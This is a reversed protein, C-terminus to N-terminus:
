FRVAMNLSGYDHDTGNRVERTLHFLTMSLSIAHSSYMIGVNRRLVFREVPVTFVSKNNKFISGQIFINSIVYDAGYDVFLFIEKKRRKGNTRTDWNVRSQTYVSNNIPNFQILRLTVDQSLKNGGTGAQASSLTVIDADSALNMEYYRSYYLNLVIENSIQSNWGQPVEFDLREHVWKQLAEMGSMKGVAGVEVEYRNSINPKPFNTVGMNAFTWGAYPRDMTNTSSFDIDHPTFIKYGIHYDVIVKSSDKKSPAFRSYMKSHLDALRRYYIDQGATYYIDIFFIIDNDVNM